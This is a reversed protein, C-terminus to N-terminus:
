EDEDLMEDLLEIQRRLRREEEDEDDGERVRPSRPHSTGRTEPALAWPSAYWPPFFPPDSQHVLTQLSANPPAFTPPSLLPASLPLYQAMPSARRRTDLPFFGPPPLHECSGVYVSPSTVQPPPPYAQLLQQQQQQQYYANPFSLSTLQPSTAYTQRFSPRRPPLQYIHPDRPSPPLYTSGSSLTRPDSLSIPPDAAIPFMQSSISRSFLSSSSSSAVPSERRPPQLAPTSRVEVARARDPGHVQSQNMSLKDLTPTWSPNKPRAVVCPEHDAGKKEEEEESRVEDKDDWISAADDVGDGDYDYNADNEEEAHRSHLPHQQHEAQSDMDGAADWVSDADDEEAQPHEQQTHHPTVQQKPKAEDCHRTSLQRAVSHEHTLSGSSTWGAAASQESALFSVTLKNVALHPAPSLATVRSSFFSSRATAAVAGPTEEERSSRRAAIVTPGVQSIETASAEARRRQL